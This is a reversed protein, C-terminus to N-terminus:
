VNIFLFLLLDGYLCANESTATGQTRPGSSILNHNRSLTASRVWIAVQTHPKGEIAVCGCDLIHRRFVALGIM